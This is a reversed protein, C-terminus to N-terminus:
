PSRRSNIAKFLNLGLYTIYFGSKVPTFPEKLMELFSNDYFFKDGISCAIYGLGIAGGLIGCSILKDKLGM